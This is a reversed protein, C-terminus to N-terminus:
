GLKAIIRTIHFRDLMHLAQGALCALVNLYPKWMDSCVYNLGSVVESGLADLGRNLTAQTRKRGVWLLRRCHGDLQYIVAMFAESRRGRGWFIEDVGIATIGTLVRHALGWEAFWEV